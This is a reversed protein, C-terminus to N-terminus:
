KDKKVSETPQHAAAPEKVILIQDAKIHELKQVIGSPWRITLEDVVAHQGLGFHPRPDSQSLYGSESGAQVYQHLDGAVAKLSAGYGDRNSVTGVLKVTLWHNRKGEAPTNHLLIGKSGLTTVFADIYGDNDYDAFAACRSVHQQEFFSGAQASVDSFTRNGNNRLLASEMPILWALGGNVIFLDRWGDNDFDVFGDGWGVYQGSIEGIGAENTVDSFYGKGSNHYLRHFRADSVFLDQWGDNDYDAFIPGMATTAEGNQGYAVYADVAVNTFTGNHNNHYLFSAMTDNAVYIDPWGDNDYDLVTVGMARGPAAAIGSDHSVDTFTGDGNNHFLRNFEPDYDLPGPYHDGPYYQRYSNVFRIYNGVFLDLHGDRDYDLFAAGVGFYPNEVGADATVDTFTGDGNNHYLISSQYGTVYIDPYGDNDFDGVTVGTAMGKGAVGAEHTVDTFTGDGNNRYLHNTADIGDPSSHNTLGPIYRGNAVYLDLLGDNNYDLWACGSGTGEMLSSLEKEGFSHQYHIGSKATVDLFQPIPVAASARMPLGQGLLGRAAWLPGAASALAVFKRRSIRM